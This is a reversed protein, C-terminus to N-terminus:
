KKIKKSIARPPAGLSSLINLAAHPGIHVGQHWRSTLAHGAVLGLGARNRHSLDLTGKKVHM